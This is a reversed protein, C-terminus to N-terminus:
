QASETLQTTDVEVVNVAKDKTVAAEDKRVTEGTNDPAM